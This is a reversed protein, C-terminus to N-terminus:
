YYHPPGGKCLWGYISSKEIFDECGPKRYFRVEAYPIYKETCVKDPAAHCLARAFHVAKVYLDDKLQRCQGQRLESLKGCERNLRVRISGPKPVDDEKATLSAATEEIDFPADYDPIV